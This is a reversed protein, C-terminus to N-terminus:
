ISLIEISFLGQVPKKPFQAPDATDSPYPKEVAIRFLNILVQDLDHLFLLLDAMIQIQWDLM